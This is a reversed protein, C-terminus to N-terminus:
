IEMLYTLVRRILHVEPTESATDAMWMYVAMPPATHLRKLNTPMPADTSIM